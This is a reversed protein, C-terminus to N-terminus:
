DFDEEFDEFFEELDDIVPQIIDELLEKSGDTYVVYALDEEFIIDGIKEDDLLLELNVFDNIDGNEEEEATPVEVSGSVKLNYYQVFGEIFSVAEKDTTEFEVDVDVGVITVGDLKVSTVLSSTKEFTQDFGLIFTFPTVMLEVDAKQPIGDSSWDVVFDLSIVEVDDIKLFADIVSPLQYEDVYDDHDEIITVLELNAIKLQGNNTDSGEAPFLVIFFDSPSKDFSETEPNWEYLGKIDDFSFPEVDTGVRASPGYIFYQAILHMRERVSEAENRRANFDFDELLNLLDLAGNVGDSETLKTIDATAQDALMDIELKAEDSNINEGGETEDECSYFFLSSVMLTWVFFNKM